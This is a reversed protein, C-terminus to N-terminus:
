GYQFETTKIGYKLNWLVKQEHELLWKKRWVGGGYGTLKKNSGIVRHCPVIISIPNKGNASGVARTGNIKGIKRAIDLYSCTKGFSINLLENWVKKQFETGELELKLSFDLRKGKFYEDIQDLCGALIQPTDKKSVNQEFEQEDDVFYLTTVNKDNSTIRILGIPSKYFRVM